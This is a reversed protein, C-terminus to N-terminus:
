EDDRRALVQYLYNASSSQKYPTRLLKRAMMVLATTAATRPFMLLFPEQREVALPVNSDYPLHGLLNLERQLFQRTALQLNEFTSIADQQKHALNIVVHMKQTPNLHSAVKVMAYADTIATPESNTVLIAEDSGAVLQVVNDSLGAGTDILLIDFERELDDFADMLRKQYVHDQDLMEIMGSSGPLISIGEPGNQLVDSFYSEGFIADGLTLNVRLGLLIDINALNTDADVLLVKKGLRGLAIALNLSLNSKGVGGKGSTVAIRRARPLGDGESQSRTLKRSRLSSAQDKL